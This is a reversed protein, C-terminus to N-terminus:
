LLVLFIVSINLKKQSFILLYQCWKKYFISEPEASLLLGPQNGSKVRYIIYWKPPFTLYILRNEFTKKLPFNNLFARLQARREETIRIPITNFSYM